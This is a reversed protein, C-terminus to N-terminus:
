FDSLYAFFVRFAPLSIGKDAKQKQGRHEFHYVCIKRMRKKQYFDKEKTFFFTYECDSTFFLNFIEPM